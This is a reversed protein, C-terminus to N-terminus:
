KPGQSLQVFRPSANDRFTDPISQFNVHQMNKNAAMLGLMAKRAQMEFSNGITMSIEIKGGNTSISLSELGESTSPLELDSADEGLIISVSRSSAATPDSYCQAAVRSDLAAQMKDQNSRSYSSGEMAADAAWKSFVENSLGIDAANVSVSSNLSQSWLDDNKALICASDAMFNGPGHSLTGMSGDVTYWSKIKSPHDRAAELKKLATTIHDRTILWLRNDGLTREVAGASGGIDLICTKDAIVEAASKLSSKEIGKEVSWCVTDQTDFMESPSLSMESVVIHMKFGPDIEQAEIDASTLLTSKKFANPNAFFQKIKDRDLVRMWDIISIDGMDASVCDTSANCMASCALYLGKLEDFGSDLLSLYPNVSKHSYGGKTVWSLGSDSAESSIYFGYDSGLKDFASRLGNKSKVVYFREHFMSISKLYQQFVDVGSAWGTGTMISPLRFEVEGTQANREGPRLFFVGNKFEKKDADYLGGVSYPAKDPHKNWANSKEKIMKEIANETGAEAKLAFPFMNGTCAKNDKDENEKYYDWLLENDDWNFDSGVDIGKIAAGWDTKKTDKKNDKGENIVDAATGADAMYVEPNERRNFLLVQLVYMGYVSDNHSAAIAYQVDDDTLDLEKIKRADGADRCPTYYFTPNLQFAEYFRSMKGGQTEQSEGPYNSTFSGASSQGHASSFDSNESTSIIECGKTIEALKAIGASSDISTEIKVKNTVCDWYAVRGLNNALAVLVSRFTGDYDFMGDPLDGDVLDGLADKLTVAEANHPDSNTAWITKGSCTKVQYDVGEQSMQPYGAGAGAGFGLALRLKLRDFYKRLDGWVTDSDPGLIAYEAMFDEPLTGYKTGIVQVNAAELSSPFEEKRVIFDQDLFVHSHDSLNITLQTASTASDTMSYGKIKFLMDMGMLGLTFDDGRTPTSLMEDGNQVLTVSATTASSLLGFNLSVKQIVGGYASTAGNLSVKAPDIITCSM